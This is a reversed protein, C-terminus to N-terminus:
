KYKQLTALHANMGILLGTYRQTLIDFDIQSLFSLRHAIDLHSLTEQLSGRAILVFRVLEKASGRGMGEAINSPVSLAARRIQSTLGYKEESPFMATIRYIEEALSQGEQWTRLDLHSKVDSM